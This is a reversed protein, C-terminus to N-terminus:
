SGGGGHSLVVLPLGRGVVPATQAVTQTFEGLRHEATAADTPYWIGVTLPPEAGNAIQVKEFGVDAAAAFVADAFLALAM